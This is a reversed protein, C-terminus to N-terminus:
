SVSTTKMLIHTQDRAKNLPNLIWCQQLSCYLDCICSLDLLATAMTYAQLQLELNVGQGPVEMHQLHLWLCVFLFVQKLNSFQKSPGLPCSLGEWLLINGEPLNLFLVVAVKLPCSTSYSPQTTHFCSTVGGPPLHNSVLKWQDRAKDQSQTAM